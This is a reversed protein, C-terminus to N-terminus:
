VNSTCKTEFITELTALLYPSSFYYLLGLPRQSKGGIFYKGPFQISHFQLALDISECLSTPDIPTPYFGLHALGNSFFSEISYPM